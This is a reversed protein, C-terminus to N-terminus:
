LGLLKSATGCRIRRPEDIYEVNKLHFARAFRNIHDIVVSMPVGMPWTYYSSATQHVRGMVHGTLVLKQV